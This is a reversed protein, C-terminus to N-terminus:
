NAHRSAGSPLTNAILHEDLPEDALSANCLGGAPAQRVDKSPRKPAIGVAHGHARRSYLKMEFGARSLESAIETETFYHVFNPVLDDGIEAATRRLLRRLAKAVVAVVDFYRSQSTRVSFSVLIPASPRAAARAGELFAVRRDRGPILAYAGVGVMIGDYTRNGPAAEPPELSLNPAFGEAELLRNAAELLRPHSEYGDVEFGLKRLALVERGGGAFPVLISRCGLFHKKLVAHEWRRLGSGNFKANAYTSKGAVGALKDIAAISDDCLVGLWFGSRIARAGVTLRDLIMESLLYVRVIGPAKTFLSGNITRRAILKETLM